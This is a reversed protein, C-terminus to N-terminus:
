FEGFVIATRDDKKRANAVLNKSADQADRSHSVIFGLERESMLDDGYDGTIGDSCLVIRDGKRLEIEGFQKTRTEGEELEGGPMGEQGIANTIVKGEGEDHTMQYANGSKDVIYIRSDGVSAYALKLKGDINVVKALVATSIGADPNNAVRESARNLVYALHAGNELSYGDSYERVVDAVINSAARGGRHGGAGDFVGYLQQDPRVFYSDECSETAWLGREINGKTVLGKNAQERSTQWYGAEGPQWEASRGREFGRYDNPQPVVNGQSGWNNYGYAADELNKISWWYEERKGYIKHRFDAMANEYERRKAANNDREISNLFNEATSNFDIPTPYYRMFDNIDNESVNQWNNFGVNTMDALIRKEHKSSLQSMVKASGNTFDNPAKIANLFEREHSRTITGQAMGAIVADYMDQNVNVDSYNIISLDPHGEQGYAFAAVVKREQRAREKEQQNEREYDANQAANPNGMNEWGNSVNEAGRVQAEGNKKKRNFIGM